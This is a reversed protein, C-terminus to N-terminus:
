LSHRLLIVSPIKSLLIPMMLRTSIKVWKMDFICSPFPLNKKLWILDLVQKALFRFMTYMSVPIRVNETRNWGLPNYAVVVQFWQFLIFFLIESACAGCSWVVVYKGFEKRRTDRGRNSPLLQYQTISVALELSYNTYGCLYWHLLLSLFCM